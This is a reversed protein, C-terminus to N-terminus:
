HKSSKLGPAILGKFSLQLMIGDEGWRAEGPHSSPAPVRIILLTGLDAPVPLVM